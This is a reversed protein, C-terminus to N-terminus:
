RAPPLSQRLMMIVLTFAGRRADAVSRVAPTLISTILCRLHRRRRYGREHLISVCIRRSKRIHEYAHADAEAFPQFRRESAHYSRAMVKRPPELDRLRASRHPSESLLRFLGEYAAATAAPSLRGM